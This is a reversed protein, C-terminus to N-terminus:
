LSEPWMRAGHIVALITIQDGGITYAVIYPTGQVVLERTREIRGPRGLRPHTGLLAVSEKIRQEVSRAAAPNDTEIFREIADLDDLAKVLWVVRM